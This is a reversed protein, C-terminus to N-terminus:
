LSGSMSIVPMLPRVAAWFRVWMDRQAIEPAGSSAPLLRAVMVEAVAAMRPLESSMPM